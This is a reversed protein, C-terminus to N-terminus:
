EARRHEQAPPQIRDPAQDDITLRAQRLLRMKCLMADAVAWADVRYQNLAIERKLEKLGKEPREHRSNQKGRGM